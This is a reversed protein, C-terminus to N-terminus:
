PSLKFYSPLQGIQGFPYNSQREINPDGGNLQAGTMVSKFPEPFGPVNIQVEYTAASEFGGHTERFRVSDPMRALTWEYKEAETLTAPVSVRGWQPYGKAADVPVLQTRTVTEAKTAVTPAALLLPLFIICPLLVTLNRFFKKM